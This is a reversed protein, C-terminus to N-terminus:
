VKLIVVVDGLSWHTLYWICIYPVIDQPYLIHTAPQSRTNGTHPFDLDHGRVEHHRGHGPITFQHCKGSPTIIYKVGQQGTMSSIQFHIKKSSLIEIIALDSRKSGDTGTMYDLRCSLLIVGPYISKRAMYCDSGQFCQLYGYTQMNRSSNQPMKSIYVCIFQIIRYLFCLLDESFIGPNGKGM